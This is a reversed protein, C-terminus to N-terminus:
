CEEGAQDVCFEALRALARGLIIYADRNLNDAEGIAYEQCNLDTTTYRLKEEIMSDDPEVSVHVTFRPKNM